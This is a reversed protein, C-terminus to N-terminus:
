NLVFTVAINTGTVAGNAFGKTGSATWGTLGGGIGGTTTKGLSITASSATFIISCNLAVATNDEATTYYSQTQAPTLSAPMGTITFATTSGNGSIGTGFVLTCNTFDATTRYTVTCTPAGTIGTSTGTFSGTVRSPNIVTFGGAASNLSSNYSFGYVNNQIGSGAAWATTGDAYYTNLAGVGNINLTSAATTTNALKLWFVQGNAYATIAPSLAAAITNTGSTLIYNPGGDQAQGVTESDTRSTGNGVSTLRFGGINLNGTAANEGNKALCANVGATYDTDNQDFRSATIVIGANLDNVWTYTPGTFTGSGNWGAM